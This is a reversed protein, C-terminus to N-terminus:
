EIVLSEIQRRKLNWLFTYQNWNAELSAMRLLKRLTKTRLPEKRFLSLKELSSCNVKLQIRRLAMKKAGRVRSPRMKLSSAQIIEWSDRKNYRAKISPRIKIVAKTWLATVTTARLHRLLTRPTTIQCMRSYCNARGNEPNLSGQAVKLAGIEVKEQVWGKGWNEWVSLEVKQLFWWM